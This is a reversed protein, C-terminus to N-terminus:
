KAQEAKKEEYTKACDTLPIATHDQMKHMPKFFWDPMEHPKGKARLEQREQFRKLLAGKRWSEGEYQNIYDNILAADEAEGWFSLFEATSQLSGYINTYGPTKKRNLDYWRRALPLFEEPKMWPRYRLWLCLCFIEDSYHPHEFLEKAIRIAVDGRRWMEREIMDKEPSRGPPSAAAYGFLDSLLVSDDPLSRLIEPTLSRLAKHRAEIREIPMGLFPSPVYPIKGNADPAPEPQQAHISNASAAMVLLVVFLSAVRSRAQLHILLPTKM